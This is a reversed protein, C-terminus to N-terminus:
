FLLEEDKLPMYQKLISPMCHIAYKAQLEPTGPMGEGAWQVFLCSNGFANFKLAFELLDDIVQSGYNKIIYQKFYKYTQLYIAESLSNQGAIKCAETYFRNNRQVTRCLESLYAYYGDTELLSGDKALARQFIWYILDNKDRFHNYFTQRATGARNIIDTVTIRSLPKENVLELLADSFIRKVNIAM